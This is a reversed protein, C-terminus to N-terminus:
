ACEGSPPQRPKIFQAPNGGVIAWNAVDRVVVSGAAVIAGCGIRVGPGVYARAAIWADDGVDISSYILPMAIDNYDHSATCLYTYQSITVHRGIAVPAFNYVEAGTGIASFAKMSFNWPYWIRVGDCILAPLDIKAGFARLALVRLPSLYRTTGRLFLVQCPMWLIRLLKIRWNWNPRLAKRGIRDDTAM